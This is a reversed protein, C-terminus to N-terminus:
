LDNEDLWADFSKKSIRISNGIIITKFHNEKVLAYAKNKGICLIKKVEEVTYTRKEEQKMSKENM